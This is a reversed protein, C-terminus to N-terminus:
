PQSEPLSASPKGWTQPVFTMGSSKGPPWPVIVNKQCSPCEIEHGSLQENCQLRQGCHVCNFKFEAMFLAKTTRETAINPSVFKWAFYAM